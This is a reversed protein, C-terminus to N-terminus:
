LTALAEGPNLGFECLVEECMGGDVVYVGAPLRDRFEASFGQSFVLLGPGFKVVYKSVQTLVKFTPAWPRLDTSACAYFCKVEVWWVEKGNILVPQAFLFDPTPPSQFYGPSKLRERAARALQQAQTEFDSLGKLKLFEEVINEFRRGAEASLVDGEGHWLWPAASRLLANRLSLAQSLLCKERHVAEEIRTQRWEPLLLFDRPEERGWKRPEYPTKFLYRRLRHENEMTLVPHVQYWSFSKLKLAKEGGNEGGGEQSM